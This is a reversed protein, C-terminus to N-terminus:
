PATGRRPNLELEMFATGPVPNYRYAKTPRFGLSAYLRRAKAMSPLTDLLMRDYGLRRAETVIAEALLRGAGLDRRGPVVFLRKMECVGEAFRRLAVCGVLDGKHEALLFAGDPPGYERPLSQIEDEFNQFALDVELSAAYQEVLRRAAAWQEPSEPRVLRIV